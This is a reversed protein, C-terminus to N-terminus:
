LVVGCMEMLIMGIREDTLFLGFSDRSCGGLMEAM